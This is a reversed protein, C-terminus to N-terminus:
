GAEAMKEAAQTQEKTLSPPPCLERSQGNYKNEYDFELGEPARIEIVPLATKDLIPATVETGVILEELVAENDLKFLKDMEEKKLENIDRVILTGISSGGRRVKLVHPRKSMDHQAYTQKTVLAGKPVSLHAAKLAERTGWKDFSEASSISGSGLFPLGRQELVAQLGGDEGGQGHLIPLVITSKPVHELFGLKAAPDKESVNFGAERAANAVAKASRLSVEREPSNGGGLILVDM